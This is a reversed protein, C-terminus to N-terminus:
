GAMAIKFHVRYKVIEIKCKTIKCETCKANQIECKAQMKCKENANVNEKYM